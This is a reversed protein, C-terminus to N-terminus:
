QNIPTFNETVLKDAPYGSEIKKQKYYKYLYSQIDAAVLIGAYTNKLEEVLLKATESEIFSNFTQITPSGDKESVSIPSLGAEEAVTFVDDMAAREYIPKVTEASINPYKEKLENYPLADSDNSQIKILENQLGKNALLEETRAMLTPNIQKQLELESESIQGKLVRDTLLLNDIESKTFGLSQYYINQLNEQLDASLYKNVTEEALKTAEEPTMAGYEGSQLHQTLTQKFEEPTKFTGDDNRPNQIWNKTLADPYNENGEFSALINDLQSKAAEQSSASSKGTVNSGKALKQLYGMEQNRLNMGATSAAANGGPTGEFKSEVGRGMQKLFDPSTAPAINNMQKVYNSYGLYDRVTKKLINKYKEDEGGYKQIAEDLKINESFQESM